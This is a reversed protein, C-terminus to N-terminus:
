VESLIVVELFSYFFTTLVHVSIHDVHLIPKSGICSFHLPSFMAKQWLPEYRSTTQFPLMYEIFPQCSLKKRLAWKYVVQYLVDFSCRGGGGGGLACVYVCWEGVCVGCGCVCVCVFVCCGGVGVGVLFLYIFFYIIFLSSSWPLSLLSLSLSASLSSLVSSSSTCEKATPFSYWRLM